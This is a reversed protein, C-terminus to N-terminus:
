STCYRAEAGACVPDVARFQTRDLGSGRVPTVRPRSVKAAPGKTLFAKEFQSENGNEKKEETYIYERRLCSIV